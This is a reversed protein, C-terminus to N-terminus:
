NVSHPPGLLHCVHGVTQVQSARSPKVFSTVSLDLNPCPSPEPPPLMENWSEGSCFKITAKTTEQSARCFRPPKLQSGLNPFQPCKESQILCDGRTSTHAKHGELCPNTPVKSPSSRQDYGANKSGYKSLSWTGKQEETICALAHPRECLPRLPCCM